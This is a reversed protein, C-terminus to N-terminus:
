RAEAQPRSIRFDEVRRSERGAADRSGNTWGNWWDLRDSVRSHVRQLRTTVKKGEETYAGSGNSWLRAATCWAVVADSCVAGMTVVRRRERERGQM